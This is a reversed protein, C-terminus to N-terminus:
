GHAGEAPRHGSLASAVAPSVGGLALLEEYVARRTQAYAAASADRKAQREQALRELEALAIEPDLLEAGAPPSVRMKVGAAEALERTIIAGDPRRFYIIM